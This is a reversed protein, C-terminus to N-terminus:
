RRPLYRDESYTLVVRPRFIVLSSFIMGSVVAEGWAMMLSVGVYEGMHQAASPAAAATISVALLALSTLATAALTVFMGNGIIFIFVNQPLWRELARQLTATLLAPLVAFLVGNLGLNLASGHTLGIHLGLAATLGLIARARGFLLVYLATGLMGFAIGDGAKVQLSWLLSICVIGALWAHQQSGEALFGERRIDGWVARLSLLVAPLFLAWGLLALEFSVSVNLLNM